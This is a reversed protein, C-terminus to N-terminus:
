GRPHAIFHASDLPPHAMLSLAAHGRKSCLHFFRERYAPNQQDFDEPLLFTHLSLELVFIFCQRVQSQTLEHYSAQEKRNYAGEEREHWDERIQNRPHLKNLM